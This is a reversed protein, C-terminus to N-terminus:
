ENNSGKELGKIILDTLMNSSEEPSYKIKEM